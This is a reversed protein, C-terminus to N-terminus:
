LASLPPSSINQPQKSISAEKSRIKSRKATAVSTNTHQSAWRLASRNLSLVIYRSSRKLMYWSRISELDSSSGAGMAFSSRAAEEGQRIVPHSGVPLMM